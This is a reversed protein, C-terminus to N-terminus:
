DSSIVNMRHTLVHPAFLRAALALLPMESSAAQCPQIDFHCVTGIVRGDEDRVPVGCYSTFSNRKMWPFRHESRVDAVELPQDHRQVIACYTADVPVDPQTTTTPNWRDYFCVSRLVEENCCYVATYRFATRRNLLHLAGRLDGRKVIAHLEALEQELSNAM